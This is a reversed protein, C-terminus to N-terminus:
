KIASNLIALDVKQLIEGEEQLAKSEIIRGKDLLDNVFERDNLGSSKCVYM